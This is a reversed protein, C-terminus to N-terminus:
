NNLIKKYNYYLEFFKSYDQSTAKGKDIKDCLYRFTHLDRIAKLIKKRLM